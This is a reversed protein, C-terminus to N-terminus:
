VRVQWCITPIRARGKAFWRGNITWDVVVIVSRLAVTHQPELWGDVLPVVKGGNKGRGSM